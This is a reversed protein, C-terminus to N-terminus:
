FINLSGSGIQSENGRKKKRRRGCAVGFCGLCSASRIVIGAIWVVDEHGHYPGRLAELGFVFPFTWFSKSVQRINFCKDLQRWTLPFNDINITTGSCFFM